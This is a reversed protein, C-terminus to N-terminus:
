PRRQAAREARGQRAARSQRAESRQDARLTASGRLGLGVPDSRQRVADTCRTEIAPSRISSSRTMSRTTARWCFRKPSSSREPATAKSPIEPVDARPDAVICPYEDNPEMLINASGLHIKYTRRHGRVRLFRDDVETVEAISLKPLLRELIDRRVKGQEGADGFAYDRWYRRFERDNVEFTHELRTLSVRDPVIRRIDRRQPRSRVATSATEKILTVGRSVGLRGLEAHGHLPM